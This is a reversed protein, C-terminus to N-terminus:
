VVEGGDNPDDSPPPMDAPMDGPMPGPDGSPAGEPGHDHHAGADDMHSQMDAMNDAGPAMTTADYGGGDAPTGMDDGTTNAYSPDYEGPPPGGPDGPPPGGAPGGEGFLPDPEMDGPPPGDPGGAM